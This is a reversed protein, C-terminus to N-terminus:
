SVEICHNGTLEPQWDLLSRWLGTRQEKPRAQLDTRHEFLCVSLSQLWLRHLLVKLWNGGSNTIPPYSGPTFTHTPLWTPLYSDRCVPTPVLLLNRQTTETLFVLYVYYFCDNYNNYGKNFHYNFTHTPPWTPLYSLPVTPLHIIVSLCLILYIQNRKLRRFKPRPYWSRHWHSLGFLWM